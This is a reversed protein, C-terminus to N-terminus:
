DKNMEQREQSQEALKYKIGELELHLKTIVSALDQIETSRIISKMMIVRDTEEEIEQQDNHVDEPIPGHLTEEVDEATPTSQTEKVFAAI